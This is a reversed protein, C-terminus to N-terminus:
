EYIESINLVLHLIEFCIFDNTLKITTLQEKKELEILQTLCDLM